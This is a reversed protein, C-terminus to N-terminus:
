RAAWGCANRAEATPLTVCRWQAEHQAAQAARRMVGQHVGQRVVREFAMLLGAALVVVGLLVPWRTTHPM